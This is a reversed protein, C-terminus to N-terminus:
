EAVPRVGRIKGNSLERARDERFTQGYRLSPAEVVQYPHFGREPWPPAQVSSHVAHQVLVIGLSESPGSGFSRGVLGRAWADREPWESPSPPREALGKSYPNM